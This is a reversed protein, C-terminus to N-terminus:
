GEYVVRYAHKAETAVTIEGGSIKPKIDAPKDAVLDYAKIKSVDNWGNPTPFTIEGGDRSYAYSKTDSVPILTTYDKAILRGDVVLKYKKEVPNIEAYTDDSYSVTKWDGDQKFGMLQRTQVLSAPLTILYYNAACAEDTYDQGYDTMFTGGYHFADVPDGGSCYTAKGHFLFGCLPIEEDVPFIHDNGRVLAYGHHVYELMQEVMGESTLDCGHQNFLRVIQKKGELSQAVSAPCDARFNMRGVESTLVDIHYSGSLGYEQVTRRVREPAYHKSYWDMGIIYSQHQGWFGGVFLDGMNNRAVIDESYGPEDPYCDDYNDHFSVIANYKKAEEILNTLREKGGLHPNVTWVDPFGSDHGKHQWGVLYVILEAGDTVRSISKIMELAQDFTIWTTQTIYDQFIKFMHSKEYLPHVFGPILGHRYIAGDVWDCKGDGNQDGILTVLCKSSEQAIFQPAPDHAKHRYTFEVSLAGSKDGHENEVIASVLHDDLSSAHLIGILNDHYVMGMPSPETWHIVHVREHLACEAVPILRGSSTAIALKANPMTQRVTIIPPMKIYILECGPHERVNEFGVELNNESLHYRLDFDVIPADGESVSVSYIIDGDKESASFRTDLGSHRTNLYRENSKRFIQIDPEADPSGGQLKEQSSKMLFEIVRPRSADLTVTCFDNTLMFEKGSM